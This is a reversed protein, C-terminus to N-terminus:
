SPQTSCLLWMFQSVSAVCHAESPREQLRTAKTPTTLRTDSWGRIFLSCLSPPFSPKLPHEHCLRVSVTTGTCVVAHMLRSLETAWNEKRPWYSPQQFATPQECQVCTGGAGIAMRQQLGFWWWLRHWSGVADACEDPLLIQKRKPVINQNTILSKISAYNGCLLVYCNLSNKVFGYQRIMVLIVAYFSDRLKGGARGRSNTEVRGGPLAMM